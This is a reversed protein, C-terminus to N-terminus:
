GGEEEETLVIGEIRLHRKAKELEKNRAKEQERMLALDERSKALLAQVCVTLRLAFEIRKGVDGIGNIIDMTAEVARDIEPSTSSFQNHPNSNSM